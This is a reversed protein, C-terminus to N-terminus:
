RSLTTQYVQGTKKNKAVAKVDSIGFVLSFEVLRKKGHQVDSLDVRLTGYHKMGPEDCFKPNKEPSVYINFTMDRQNPDSPRAVYGVSQGVKVVTNAKILTYFVNMLGTETRREPPDGKKWKMVVQVGYTYKLERSGPKFPHTFANIEQSVTMQQMQNELGYLPG